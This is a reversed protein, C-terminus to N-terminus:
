LFINKAAEQTPHVSHKLWSCICWRALNRTSRKFRQPSIATKRNILHRGDAM